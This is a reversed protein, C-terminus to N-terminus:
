LRRVRVCSDHDELANQSYIRMNSVTLHYPALFGNWKEYEDNNIWPTVLVRSGQKVRDRILGPHVDSNLILSNPIFIASADTILETAKDFAAKWSASSGDHSISDV